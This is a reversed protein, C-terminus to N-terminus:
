TLLYIIEDVGWGVIYIHQIGVTSSHNIPNTRPNLSYHKGLTLKELSIRGVLICSILYQLAGTTWHFNPAVRGRDQVAARTKPRGGLGKGRMHLGPEVQVAAGGTSGQGNGM